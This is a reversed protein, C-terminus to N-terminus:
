ALVEALEARGSVHLKAFIKGLHWEITRPSLNLERAIQSTTAMTVARHALDAEFESLEALTEARGGIHKMRRLSLNVLGRATRALGREDGGPAAALLESAASAADRCLLHQGLATFGRAADVLLAPDDKLLGAAYLSLSEAFRGQSSDATELMQGAAAKDKARVAASLFLLAPAACGTDLASVAAERLLRCRSDPDPEEALIAFYKRQFGRFYPERFRTTGANLPTGAAARGQQVRVYGALIRALPLMEQPDHVELQGIGGTLAERAAGDQGQWVALVSVALEGASGQYSPRVGTDDFLKVFEAGRELEGALIYTDFVRTCIEEVNGAGGSGAGPAYDAPRGMAALAAMADSGRGALALANAHLARAHTRIGHSLRLDRTLSALGDPVASVNGSDLVLASRAIVLAAAAEPGDGQPPGSIQVGALVADPDPANFRALAYAYETMLPVYSDRDGPDPRHEGVARVVGEFDGTARLARVEELVLGQTREGAATRSLLLATAPDSRGNAAAAAAQLVAAPGPSGGCSIAWGVFAVLEPPALSGQDVLVSVDDWLERRRGPLMTAAIVTGVSGGAFRVAAGADEVRILQREELSDVVGAPVLELVTPLPLSRALALVEVLRREQPALRDLMADVVEGVDGTRVFSGTRVWVPGRRVLTGSRVQAETMLRIFRPSGETEHWMTGAALSSVAGGLIQQMLQRTQRESLPELAIRALLGESWLDMLEFGSEWHASAAAVVAVSGRRLLQALVMSSFRDLRDANDVALLIRRGGSGAALSSDLERLLQLPSSVAAEPLGGILFALAGYPTHSSIPTGRVYLTHFDERLRESVAQLVATKGFGAGGLVLAGRGEVVATCIADLADARGVLDDVASANKM